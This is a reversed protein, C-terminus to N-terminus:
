LQEAANATRLQDRLFNKVKRVAARPHEGSIMALELSALPPLGDTTGLRRFDTPIVDEPLATIAGGDRIAAIISPIHTSTWGIRWPRRARDLAGLIHPRARCNDPFLALPLVRESEPEHDQGACWVLAEKRLFEGTQSSPARTIVALDLEGRAVKPELQDSFDCLLELQVNPNVAAFSKILPRGITDLYDDPMGVRVQGGASDPQLAALAEDELAIIRRAYGLLIEGAPSPRIGRRSRELLRSGLREEFRAIAISVAAQSKGLREAASTFSGADVVAVYAALADTDLHRM